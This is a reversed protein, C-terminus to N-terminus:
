RDMEDEDLSDDNYVEMHKEDFLELSEPTLLWQRVYATGNKGKSVEDDLDFQPLM